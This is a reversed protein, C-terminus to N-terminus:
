EYLHEVIIMNGSVVIKDYDIISLNRLTLLFNSVLNMQKLNIYYQGVDVRTMTGNIQLSEKM